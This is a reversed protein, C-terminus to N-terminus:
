AANRPLPRPKVEACACPSQKLQDREAGIGVPDAESLGNCAVLFLPVLGFSWFGLLKRKAKSGM